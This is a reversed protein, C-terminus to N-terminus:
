QKKRAFVINKSKIKVFLRLFPFTLARILFVFVFYIVDLMCFIAASVRSFLVRHLLCFAALATLFTYLRVSGDLAYFSLLIFGLFFCLTLLFSEISELSEPIRGRIKMPKEFIKGYTTLDDWLKGFRFAYRLLASFATTLAFFGVGFILSYILSCLVERTTFAIM